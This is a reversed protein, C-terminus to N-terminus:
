SEIESEVAPAQWGGLKAVQEALGQATIEEPPVPKGIRVTVRSWFRRFPRTMPAGWRRRFFSGWLGILAVPLVPAASKRVTEVIEPIFHGLKGDPTIRGEPFLCVVEGRDLATTIEAYANDLVEPSDEDAAIPIVKADRFFYSIVPMQGLRHDMVFRPPRAPLLSAIVLWDVWSVHNAVLIVPGEDPIEEEGEAKLRYMIKALVWAAFRLLFEPIVTYIYLAVVLNMVAMVAFILPITLGAGLFYVLTLSSVVIFLANIINNGAIVRSRVEANSRQQVLTYLPVTYFGSFIAILLLDCCIRVGGQAGLFEWIGMLAGRDALAAAFPGSALALDLAFLSIGISGLPVLGLELRRNSLRECLLSGVAIGICFVALFLTVVPEGGRLVDKSFNPLLSLFSAGIFWFWSIGLISLFVVRNSTTVRLIRVTPAVPNVSVALDPNAARTRPILFSAVLGSVAITVVVAGLWSIWADGKSVFWGGTITGLLIALFTGTEVLANGGVLEKDDLLEPLISYKSPGFFASQLGMLFLVVVLLPLSSLAFGVGALAMIVIEAGKIWRIMIAKSFRDALQGATASFLFFPMIFIGACAVVLKESTLGALELSRYAVIIVLANKFLNDNFAGLFQTWFLSWFRRRFLLQLQSM